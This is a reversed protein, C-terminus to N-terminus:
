QSLGAPSTESAAALLGERSKATASYTLYQLMASAAKAYWPVQLESNSKQCTKSAGFVIGSSSRLAASAALTAASQLSASAWAARLPPCNENHQCLHTSTHHVDNAEARANQVKLVVAAVCNCACEGSRCLPACSCDRLSTPCASLESGPSM